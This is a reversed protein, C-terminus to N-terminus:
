EKFDSFDINWSALVVARAIKKWHEKSHRSLKEYPVKGLELFDIPKMDDTIDAYSEYACQALKDITEEDIM